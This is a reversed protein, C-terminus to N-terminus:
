SSCGSTVAQPRSPPASARPSAPRARRTSCRAAESRTPRSPRPAPPWSRSTRSSRPTRGDDADALEDGIVICVPCATGLRDAAARGVELFRDEVVLADAGADEVVYVLEDEVWHWNVPVIIWAAHAAAVTIEFLERRNGSMVAITSGPGLGRARVAHIFRNAREDLDSWSTSGREDLLAPEGGKRDAIRRLLQTM